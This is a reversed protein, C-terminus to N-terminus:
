VRVRRVDGQLVGRTYIIGVPMVGVAIRASEALVDILLLTLRDNNGPWIIRRNVIRLDTADESM